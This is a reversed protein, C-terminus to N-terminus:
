SRYYQAVTLIGGLTLLQPGYVCSLSFFYDVMGGSLTSSKGLALAVNFLVWYGFGLLICAGIGSTRTLNFKTGILLGCLSLVATSLPYGFKWHYYITEVSTSMDHQNRFDRMLQLLSLELEEPGIDRNRPDHGFVRRLRDPGSLEIQTSEKNEIEFAGSPRFNRVTLGSLTWQGRGDYSGKKADVRRKIQGNRREILTINRMSQEDPRLQNIRLVTNESLQLHIDTFSPEPPSQGEFQYDRIFKAKKSVTPLGTVSYVTLSLAGLLILVIPFRLVRTPSAGGTLCATWENDRKWENVSWFSGILGILPSLFFLGYLTRYGVYQLFLSLTPPNELLDGTLGFLDGLMFLLLFIVLCVVTPKLWRKSFERDLITM